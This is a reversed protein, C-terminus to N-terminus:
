IRGGSGLEPTPDLRIGRRFANLNSRGDLFGGEGSSPGAGLAASQTTAYPGTGHGVKVGWGLRRRFGDSGCRDAGAVQSGGIELADSGGDVGLNCLGDAGRVRGAPPAPLHPAASAPQRRQRGVRIGQSGVEGLPSLGPEAVAGEVAVAGRDRVAMVLFTKAIRGGGSDDSPHATPQAADSAGCGAALGVRQGDGLEGLDHRADVRSRAFALHDSRIWRPRVGRRSPDSGRGEHRARCGGRRVRAM